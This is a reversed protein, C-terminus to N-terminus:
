GKGKTSKFDRGSKNLTSYHDHNKHANGSSKNVLVDSVKGSSDTKVAIKVDTDQGTDGDNSSGSFFDSWGM